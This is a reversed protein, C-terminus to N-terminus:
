LRCRRFLPSDQNAAGDYLEINGGIFLRLNENVPYSLGLGKGGGFGAEANHARRTETVQAESVEYFYRNLRDNGYLLELDAQWNLHRRTKSKNM